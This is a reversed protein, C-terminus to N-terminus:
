KISKLTIAEQQNLINTLKEVVKIGKYHGNITYSIVQPTVGILKALHRITVGCDLVRKKLPLNEPYRIKKEIMEM